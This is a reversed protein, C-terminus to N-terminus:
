LEVNVSFVLRDTVKLVLKIYEMEALVREFLMEDAFLMWILVQPILHTFDAFHWFM